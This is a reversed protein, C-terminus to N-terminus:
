HNIWRIMIEPHFRVLIGDDLVYRFSFMFAVLAAVSIWNIKLKKDFRVISVEYFFRHAIYVPVVSTFMMLFILAENYTIRPTKLAILTISGLFWPVFVVATIFKWRKHFLL